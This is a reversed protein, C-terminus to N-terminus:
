QENWEPVRDVVATDTVTSGDFATCTLTYVTRGTIPSSAERGGTRTDVAAVVKGTQDRVEKTVANWADGNSGSVNCKTTEQSTWRVETEEGDRLLAPVAAIDASIMTKRYENIASLGNLAVEGGTIIAGTSEVADTGGIVIEPLPIEGPAPVTRSITRSEAIQCVASQTFAKGGGMYGSSGGSNGRARTSFGASCSTRRNLYQIVQSLTKTGTGVREQQVQFTDGPASNDAPGGSVDVWQSWEDVSCASEDEIIRTCIYDANSKAVFTASTLAVAAVALAPVLVKWSTLTNFSINKM